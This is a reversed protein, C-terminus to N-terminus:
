QQIYNNLINILLPKQNNNDTNLFICDSYEVGGKTFKQYAPEADNKIRLLADDYNDGRERIDRSIRREFRIKEYADIWIKIDMVNRFREDSFAFLGEVIIIPTPNYILESVVKHTDYDYVPLRLVEGRILTSLGEFARDFDMADPNDHRYELSNVYEVDKYYSDLTFICAFNKLEDKLKTAFWTKGAGSAGSIGVIFTKKNM